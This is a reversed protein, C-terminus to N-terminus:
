SKLRVAKAVMEELVEPSVPRLGTAELSVNVNKRRIAVDSHTHEHVACEFGQM